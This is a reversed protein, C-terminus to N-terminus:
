YENSVQEGKSVKASIIGTWPRDGHNGEAMSRPETRDRPRAPTTESRKASQGDVETQAKMSTEEMGGENNNSAKCREYRREEDCPWVAFPKKQTVCTDIPKVM